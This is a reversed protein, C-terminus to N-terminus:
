KHTYLLRIHLGWETAGNANTSVDLVFAIAQGKNYRRNMKIDFSLRHVGGTGLDDFSYADTFWWPAEFDGIPEPVAGAAFADRSTGIIGFRGYTLTNGGAAMYTFDGIMRRINAVDALQDDNLGTSLDLLAQSGIASTQEDVTSQLWDYRTSKRTSSRRGRVRGPM